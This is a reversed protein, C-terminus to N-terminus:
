FCSLFSAKNFKIQWQQFLWTVRECSYARGWVKVEVISLSFLLHALVEARSEFSWPSLYVTLDYFNIYFTFSYDRAMFKNPYKVFFVAKNRTFFQQIEVFLISTSLTMWILDIKFTKLVNEMTIAIHKAVFLNWFLHIKVLVVKIVYLIVLKIRVCFWVQLRHLIECGIFSHFIPNVLSSWHASVSKSRLCALWRSVVSGCSWDSNSAHFCERLELIQMPKTLDFLVLFVLFFAETVEDFLYLNCISHQLIIITILIHLWTELVIGHGFNVEFAPDWGVGEM